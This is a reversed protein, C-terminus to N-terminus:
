YITTEHVGFTEAIQPAKQDEDVLRVILAIQEANLKPPRGFKVGRTM